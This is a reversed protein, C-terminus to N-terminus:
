QQNWIIEFVPTTQFFRRDDQNAFSKNAFEPKLGSAHLRTRAATFDPDNGRVEERYEDYRKYCSALMAPRNADVAEPNVVKAICKFQVASIDIAKGADLNDMAQKFFEVAPSTRLEELKTFNAVATAATNPTLVRMAPIGNGSVTFQRNKESRFVYQPNEPTINVRPNSSSTIVDTLSITDGVELGSIAQSGVTSKAVSAKVAALLAVKQEPTLNKVSM